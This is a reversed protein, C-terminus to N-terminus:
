HRNKCRHQGAQSKQFRQLVKLWKSVKPMGCWVTVTLHRAPFFSAAHQGPGFVESTAQHQPSLAVMKGTELGNFRKLSFLNLQPFQLWAWKVHKTPELIQLTEPKTPHVFDGKELTLQPFQLFTKVRIPQRLKRGKEM